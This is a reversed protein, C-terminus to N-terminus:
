SREPPATAVAERVRCCFWTGYRRECDDMCGYHEVADEIGSYGREKCERLLSAREEESM